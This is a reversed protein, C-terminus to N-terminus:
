NKKERLVEEIYDFSSLIDAKDLGVAITHEFHAAISNDRTRVSWNDKELFVKRDGLTIMPEIALCMGKKLLPGSGRRGHNPVAPDEHMEKGIGHGVFERVVGYHYSECHNQIAFGIDGVRKGHVANEIGKYLAEKTIALLQQVEPSVEGVCFTYASDGCFGNLLTGCDVSVIDGDHLPEDNPIGHVVQSNVSTCISAPFPSGYPNPFGKFTPIAGNDRIFEEAIRDLQRTTIGPRIMKAVEALTRGVLLNSQRLLEIEDDTKLIIM